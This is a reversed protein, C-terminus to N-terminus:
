DRSGTRLRTRRLAAAGRVAWYVVGYALAGGLLSVVLIGVLFGRGQELYFSVMEALELDAAPVLSGFGEVRGEMLLQGMVAAAALIFPATIWNSTFTGIVAPLSRLGLKRPVVVAIMTALVSIPLIGLVVGMSFSAAAGHPDRSRHVVQLHHYRFVRRITAISPITPRFSVSEM